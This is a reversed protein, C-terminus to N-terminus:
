IFRLHKRCRTQKHLRNFGNYLRYHGFMRSNMVKRCGVHSGVPGGCVFICPITSNTPPHTHTNENQSPNRWTPNHTLPRRGTFHAPLIRINPGGLDFLSIGVGHGYIRIGLLIRAYTRNKKQFPHGLISKQGIRTWIPTGSVYIGGFPVSNRSSDLPVLAPTQFGYKGVFFNSSKLQHGFKRPMYELKTSVVPARRKRCGGIRDMANSYM